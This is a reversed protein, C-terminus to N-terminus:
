YVWVVCVGDGLEGERNIKGRGRRCIPLSNTVEGVLGGRETEDTM